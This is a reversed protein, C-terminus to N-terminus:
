FNFIDIGGGLSLDTVALLLFMIYILLGFNFNKALFNVEVKTKEFLVSSVAASALHLETPSENPALGRFLDLSDPDLIGSTDLADQFKKGRSIELRLLAFQHQRLKNTAFVTSLEEMLLRIGGGQAVGSATMVKMTTFLEICFGADYFHYFKLKKLALRFRTPATLHYLYVGLTGMTLFSLLWRYSYFFGGIQSATTGSIDTFAIEIADNYIYMAIFASTFVVAMLIETINPILLKSILSTSKKDANITLDILQPVTNFKQAMQLLKTTKQPFYGTYQSAFYASNPNLSKAALERHIKNTGRLMSRFIDQYSRGSKLQASLITLFLVQKDTDFVLQRKLNEMWSM